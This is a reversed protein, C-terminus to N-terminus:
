CKRLRSLTSDTVGIYSAIHKLPALQNVEPRTSRLEDYREKATLSHHSIHFAQRAILTRVMWNRGWKGFASSSHMFNQFDTKKVEWILGPGLVEIGELSPENLFFGAFDLAIEERAMFATTIDEGSPSFVFSRLLASEVLWYADNQSRKRLLEEGKKVELLRHIEYLKHVESLSLSSDRYYERLFDSM